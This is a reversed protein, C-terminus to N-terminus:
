VYVNVYSGKGPVAAQSAAPGPAGPLQRDRMQNLLQDLMEERWAARAQNVPRYDSQGNVRASLTNM